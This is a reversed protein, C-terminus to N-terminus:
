EVVRLRLFKRTAGSLPVEITVDQGISAPDAAKEITYEPTWSDAALTTSSEVLYRVDGTARHFTFGLTAADPMDLAPLPFQGPASPNGGLAFEILNSVGDGDPDAAATANSGSLSYGTAWSELSTQPIANIAVTATSSQRSGGVNSVRVWYSTAASLAPTTFLASTAGAVPQSTDGTM